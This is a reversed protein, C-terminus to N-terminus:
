AKLYATYTRGDIDASVYTSDFELKSATALLNIVRTKQAPKDSYKGSCGCCCKGAKGSYVHDIMSPNLIRGDPFTVFKSTPLLVIPAPNAFRKRADAFINDLRTVDQWISSILANTETVEAETLANEEGVCLSQPMTHTYMTWNIKM